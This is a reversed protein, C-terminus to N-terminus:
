DFIIARRLPRDSVSPSWFRGSVGAARSQLSYSIAVDCLTLM